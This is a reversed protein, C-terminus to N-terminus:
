QDDDKRRYYYIYDVKSPTVIIAEDEGEIVLLGDSRFGAAVERASLKPMKITFSDDDTYVDVYPIGRSQPIINGEDCKNIDRKLYTRYARLRLVDNDISILSTYVDKPIRIWAKYCKTFEIDFKSSKDNWRLYAYNCDCSGTGGMSMENDIETGTALRGCSECVFFKEEM